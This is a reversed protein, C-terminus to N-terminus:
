AYKRRSRTAAYAEAPLLDWDASWVSVTVDFMWGQIRTTVMEMSISRSIVALAPLDGPGYGAEIKERSPTVGTEFRDQRVFVSEGRSDKLRSWNLVADWVARRALTIPSTM